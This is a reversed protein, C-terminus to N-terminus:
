PHQPNTLLPQIGSQSAEAVVMTGGHNDGAVAFSSAIYNGLLAINASHSGDTLSLTGGPQNSNPLYGLTPQQDFAISPLDIASQAGFGSITGTFTSPQDLVLVGPNGSQFAINASSAQAIEMTGAVTLPASNTTTTAPQGVTPDLGASFPSTNGASSSATAYFIYSGTALAGTTFSWSGSANAQTTGMEIKGGLLSGQHYVSVTTDAEATGTLTVTNGNVTDTTIIPAPPVTPLATNITVDLAASAGSVNGAADTATATFAQPGSALMGTTYTWAGSANAIATGAETQGDYVTM